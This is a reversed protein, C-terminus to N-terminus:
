KCIDAKVEVNKWLSEFEHVYKTILHPNNTIIVNENNNVVASWTWNFSGTILVGDFINQPHSVIKKLPNPKTSYHLESDQKPIQCRRWLNSLRSQVFSSTDNGTDDGSIGYKHSVECYEGGNRNVDRSMGDPSEFSQEPADVIAFKHHMLLAPNSLRVVVRHEHLISIASECDAM